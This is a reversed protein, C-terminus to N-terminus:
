FISSLTDIEFYNLISTCAYNKSVFIYFRDKQRFDSFWSFQYSSLTRIYICVLSLSFFLYNFLCLSPLNSNRYTKIYCHLLIFFCVLLCFPTFPLYLSLSFCYFRNEAFSFAFCLVTAHWQRQLTSHHLFMIFLCYNLCLM